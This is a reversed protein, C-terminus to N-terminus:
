RSLGLQALTPLSLDRPSLTADAPLPWVGDLCPDRPSFGRAGEPQFRESMLYYLACDPELTQFGHAFGTPVYLALGNEASLERAVHGLRTPSGPRLDVIVDLIRGRVCRVIKVEGHPEAQWHMGRLTGRRANASLNHQPFHTVLGRAGLEDECFARAFWGREDERRELELVFAGALETEVVRM